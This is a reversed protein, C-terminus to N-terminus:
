TIVELRFGVVARASACRGGQLACSNALSGFKETRSLKWDRPKCTSPGCLIVERPIHRADPSDGMLLLLLIM